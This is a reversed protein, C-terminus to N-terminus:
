FVEDSVIKSYPSTPANSSPSRGMFSTIASRARELISPSQQQQQQQEVPPPMTAEGVKRKSWDDYCCEGCFHVWQRTTAQDNPKLAIAPTGKAKKTSCGECPYAYHAIITTKISGIIFGGGGQPHTMKLKSGGRTYTPQLSAM